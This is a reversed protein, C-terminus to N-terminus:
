DLHRYFVFKYSTYQRLEQKKVEKGGDPDKSYIYKNGSTFVDDPAKIKFEGDFGARAIGEPATYVRKGDADGIYVMAGYQGNDVNDLVLGEIEVM